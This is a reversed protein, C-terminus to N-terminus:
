SWICASQVGLGAEPGLDDYIEIVSPSHTESHQLKMLSVMLPDKAMRGFLARIFIHHRLQGFVIIHLPHNALERFKLLDHHSHVGGMRLVCM